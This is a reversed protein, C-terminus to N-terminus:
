KNLPALSFFPFTLPGPVALMPVSAPPNAAWPRGPVSFSWASCASILCLQAAKPFLHNSVAKPAVKQTRLGAMISSGKGHSLDVQPITEQLIRPSIVWGLSWHDQSIFKSSFTAFIINRTFKAYIKAFGWFTLSDFPLRLFCVDLLQPLCVLATCIRGPQCLM